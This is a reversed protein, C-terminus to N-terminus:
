SIANIYFFVLIENHDKRKKMKERKNEDVNDNYGAMLSTSSPYVPKVMGTQGDMRRDTQPFFRTRETDEVISAPKIEYKCM